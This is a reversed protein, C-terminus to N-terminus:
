SLIEKVQLSRLFVSVKLLKKVSFLTVNIYAIPNSYLYESGILVIHLTESKLLLTHGQGELCPGPSKTHCMTMM